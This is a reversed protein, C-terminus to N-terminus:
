LAASILAAGSVTSLSGVTTVPSLAVWRRRCKVPSCGVVLASARGRVFATRRHGFRVETQLAEAHGAARLEVIQVSTRDCARLAAGGELCSWERASWGGGRHACTILFLRLGFGGTGLQDRQLVYPGVGGRLIHRDVVDICPVVSRVIREEFFCSSPSSSTDPRMSPSRLSSSAQAQSSFEHGGSRSAPRCSLCRDIHKVIEPTTPKNGELMGKM